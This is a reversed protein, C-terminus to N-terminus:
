PASYGQMPIAYSPLAVQAVQPLAAVNLLEEVPVFAQVRRDRRMETRAGYKGLGTAAAAAASTFRVEVQVANGKTRLGLKSASMTNIRGVAADLALTRLPGALDSLGAPEASWAVTALCLCIVILWCGALWSRTPRLGPSM